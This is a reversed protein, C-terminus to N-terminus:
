NRQTVFPYKAIEIGPKGASDEELGRVVLTYRLGPELSSTPILLNLAEGPARPKLLPVTFLIAGSESLVEGRYQRFSQGPPPDLSLGFFRSGHSAEIVQEDGRTVSRLFVLPYAQPSRLEALETRLGQAVRVQYGGAGAVLLVVGAMSSAFVPRLCAWEWWSPVPPRRAQDVFVARANAEFIAGTRVEEACAQCDFFHEEFQDRDADSLEGLLYREAAQMRTAQDHEM